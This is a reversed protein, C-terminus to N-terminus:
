GKAKVEGWKLALVRASPPTEKQNRSDQNKAVATKQRERKTSGDGKPEGRM